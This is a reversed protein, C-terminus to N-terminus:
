QPLARDLAGASQSNILDRAYDAIFPRAYSYAARMLSRGRETAFLGAVAGGLAAGILTARLPHIEIFERTSEFVHAADFQQRDRAEPRSGAAQYNSEATEDGVSMVDNAESDFDSPDQRGDRALAAARGNTENNKKNKMKAM